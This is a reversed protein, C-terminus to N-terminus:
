KINLKQNFMRLTELVNSKVHIFNEIGAEQFKKLTSKPYGAVAFLTKTKLKNYIEVVTDSYDEDSSCAVVIEAKSKLATEIGKEITKFGLNDIIQYGACAFFNSIFQARARSMALNGYTFLFVKPTKGELNEIQLRLNEFEEAGRYINLPQVIANQTDVFKSSSIETNIKEKIFENPNPFQNTGLIIEKRKSINQDRIEATEVIKDQIIGKKFAALYGGLNEIEVFLKWAENAISNTLNEVFYSGAAPDVIKDLYAEEKLINQQNIALHESFNDSKKFASDFPLVTLSDTGGIIASLAETTTRLINVYPDYITRNWGSTESHIFMKASDLDTAKYSERIKSWLLRAARIKAIEMFYNSGVAFNFQMHSSIEKATLGKETLKALYENGISLSFALEQVITGGSNHFNKGDVAIVKFNPLNENAFVVLNKANEFSIEESKCCYNGNISFYSIPDFNISGYIKEASIGKRNIEDNLLSLINPSSNNLLFNLKVNELDINKLLNSFNDNSIETENRCVFGISNVGKKLLNIAKENVKKIDLVEIDQRIDWKNSDTKNGRIFPFEGPLHKIHLFHEIDEKRYYPKIDIGELTKSILKKAYDGGKLDKKIQEEWRETDVPSFENFLGNQLEKKDM